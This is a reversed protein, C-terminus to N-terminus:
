TSLHFIVFWFYRNKTLNDVFALWQTPSNVLVVRREQALFYVKLDMEKLLKLFVKDVRLVLAQKVM